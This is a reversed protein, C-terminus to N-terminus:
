RKGRLKSALWRAGHIAWAMPGFIVFEWGEFTDDDYILWYAVASSIIWSALFAMVMADVVSPGIVSDDM